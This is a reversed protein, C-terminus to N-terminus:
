LDRLNLWDGSTWCRTSTTLVSTLDLVLLFKYSILSSEPSFGKATDGFSTLFDTLIPSIGWFSWHLGGRRSISNFLLLSISTDRIFVSSSWFTISEKHLLQCNCRANRCSNRICTCKDDQVNQVYHEYQLRGKVKIKNYHVYKETRCIFLENFLILCFISPPTM